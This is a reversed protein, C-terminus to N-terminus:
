ETGESRLFRLAKAPSKMKKLRKELVRAEQMSSVQRSAVLELGAGLRRTTHCSGRQHENIRQDLRDSAGFHHRGSTGRLIYVWAM